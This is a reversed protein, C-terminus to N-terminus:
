KPVADCLMFLEYFGNVADFMQAKYSYNKTIERDCFFSSYVFVYFLRFSGIDAHEVAISFKDV